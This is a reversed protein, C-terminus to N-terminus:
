RLGICVLDYSTRRAKLFCRGAQAQALGIPSLCDGAALLAAIEAPSRGM